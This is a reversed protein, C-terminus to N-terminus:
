LSVASADVDQVGGTVVTPVAIEVAMVVDSPRVRSTVVLGTYSVDVVHPIVAARLTEVDRQVDATAVSHVAVEVLLAYPSCAEM